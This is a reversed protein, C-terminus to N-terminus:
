KKTEPSTTAALKRYLVHQQLWHGDELAPHAFEGIREMGAKEMIRESRKNPIATFSYVEKLKLEEFAFQLCRSAGETAFGHGWESQLLRWGIEVCPTFWSTFSPNNLGIFGIFTGSDLRDVAFFCYGHKDFHEQFRAVLATTEELNRTGPFFEMVVPDANLRAFPAIDTDQWQRFGLRASRFIYNNTNM